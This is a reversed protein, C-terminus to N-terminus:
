GELEYPIHYPIAQGRDMGSTKRGDQRGKSAALYMCIVNERLDEQLGARGLM